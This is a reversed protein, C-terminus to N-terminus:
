SNSPLSITFTSGKGPTSVVDITGQHAHVIAKVFSLGLGLGKTSRSDDGRYLRDWIKPLDKPSIGVGTDASTIVWRGDSHKTEITVRGRSPTYKIANDLINALVQTMRDPDVMIYLAEPVHIALAVGKEEAIYQYMDTLGTLLSSLTVTKQDLKMVGTEAESIDMLTTLMKLIRDSEEICDALAERYLDVDKDAQLAMECTNRLRTMPTRLEHAVNDISEKMGTILAHIREAMENFLNALENLEDRSGTCPVRADYNGNVISQVTHIMNQIPKMTRAALFTGGAVGMLVLPPIIIFFLEFFQDLALDRVESSRGLQLWRGDHLRRSLLLLEFDEDMTPLYTWRGNTIPNTGLLSLDFEKWLEPYLIYLTRNSIDAIRVFFPNKGRYTNKNEALERQLSPLGRFNYETTLRGLEAAIATKDVRLLTYSLFYHTM